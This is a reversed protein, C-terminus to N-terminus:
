NEKGPDYFIKRKPVQLSVQKYGYVNVVQTDCFKSETIDYQQYIHIHGHLHYAPKFVELLWRFAKIGHHPLDDKDHIQWCPAHTVLLDLYRGYFIRNLLLRPALGLVMAWMEAQTYQHPGHNYNISGEIGALLLGSSDRVVRRHLDIGGWPYDRKYHTGEESHQPAHNGKVYYLPRNLMSVIYELYYYPLDGCGIILDVDKFRQAVLPSYIMDVEVDSVALIKMNSLIGLFIIWAAAADHAPQLRSRWPM